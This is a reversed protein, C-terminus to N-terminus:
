KAEIQEPLESSFIRALNEDLETGIEDENVDPVDEEDDCYLNFGSAITGEEVYDWSEVIWSVVDKRAPKILIWKDTSNRLQAILSCTWLLEMSGEVPKM